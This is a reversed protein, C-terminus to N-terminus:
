TPATDLAIRVFIYAASRDTVVIGSFVMPLSECCSDLVTTKMKLWTSVPEDSCNSMFVSLPFPKSAQRRRHRRSSGCDPVARTACNVPSRRM